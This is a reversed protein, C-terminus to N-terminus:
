NEDLRLALFISATTAPREQIRRKTQGIVASEQIWASTATARAQMIRSHAALPLQRRSSATLISAAAHNQNYQPYPSRSRRRFPQTLTKRAFSKRRRPKRSM